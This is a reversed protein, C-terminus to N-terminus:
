APLIRKPLVLYKRLSEREQKLLTITGVFDQGDMSLVEVVIEDKYPGDPLPTKFIPTIVPLPSDNTGDQVTGVRSGSGSGSSSVAGTAISSYLRTPNPSSSAPLPVVPTALPPLVVM